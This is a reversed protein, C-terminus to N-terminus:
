KSTSCKRYAFCGNPLTHQLYVSYFRTDARFSCLLYLLFYYYLSAYNTRHGLPEFSLSSRPNSLDLFAECYLLMQGPIMISSYSKLLCFHPQNSNPPLFSLYLLPSSFLKRNQQFMTYIYQLLSVLTPLHSADYLRQSRTDAWPAQVLNLWCHPERWTLTVHHSM